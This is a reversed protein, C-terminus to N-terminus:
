QSVELLHISVRSKQTTLERQTNNETLACLQMDNLDNTLLQSDM